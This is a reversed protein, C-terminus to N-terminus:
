LVNEVLSRFVYHELVLRETAAIDIFELGYQMLPIGDDSTHLNRVKADFQLSHEMGAASLSFTLSIKEDITAILQSLELSGGSASLNSIQGEYGIADAYNCVSVPLYVDARLNSRLRRYEIAQPYHLHLYPPQVTCAAKINTHLTIIGNEVLVKIALPDGIQYQLQAGYQNTASILLDENKVWGILKVTDFAQIGNEDKRIHLIVGPQLRIQEFSTPPEESSPAALHSQQQSQCARSPYDAHRFLGIVELSDLEQESAVIHGEAHLLTCDADFIPFPLPTGIPIEHRDLPRLTLHTM